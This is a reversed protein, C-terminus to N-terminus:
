YIWLCNLYSPLPPPPSSLFQEELESTSHPHHRLKGDLPLFVVIKSYMDSNHWQADILICHILIMYNLPLDM